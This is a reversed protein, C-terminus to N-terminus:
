CFRDLVRGDRGVVGRALGRLMSFSAQRGVEPELGKAPRPTRRPPACWEEPTYALREAPM